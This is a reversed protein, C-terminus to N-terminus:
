EKKFGFDNMIQKIEGTEKMKQLESNIKNILLEAEPIKKNICIYLPKDELTYFYEIKNYDQQFHKRLQYNGVFKDAVVIDVRKKLLKRFNMIDDVGEEKSLYKASDFEATNIYGRVVGFNFQKLDPLTTFKIEKEKLKFFGLPGGPIPDSFYYEKEVELDYYEPFYGHTQLNKAMTITRNWPVFVIKLDFGAKQFIRRAIEAVYGNAVLSEGIYPEWNLSSLKIDETVLM